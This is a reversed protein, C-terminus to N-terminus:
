FPGSNIDEQYTFQLEQEEEKIKKLLRQVDAFPLGMVEPLRTKPTGMEIANRLMDLRADKLTKWNWRVVDEDNTMELFLNEVDTGYYNRSKTFEIEMALSDEKSKDQSIKIVTDMFNERQSTGSQEGSKNGHHILIVAINQRRLWSLMREWQKWVQLETKLERTESCLNNYNDFIIVQADSLNELFLKKGKNSVLNWPNDGMADRTIVRLNDIGESQLGYHIKKLRLQLIADRMECDITLVKKQVATWKLFKTGTSISYGIGAAVFTKGSGRNGWLLTLSGEQVISGLIEKPPTLEAQLLESGLYGLPKM